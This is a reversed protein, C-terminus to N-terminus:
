PQDAYPGGAAFTCAGALLQRCRRRQWRRGKRRPSATMMARPEITPARKDVPVAHRSRCNPSGAPQRETM